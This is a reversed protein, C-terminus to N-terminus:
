RVTKRSRIWPKPINIICSFSDGSADHNLAVTVVDDTEDVLIGVTEILHLAPIIESRETWADISVADEWEIRVFKKKM